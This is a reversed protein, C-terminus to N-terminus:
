QFVDTIWQSKAAVSGGSTTSAFETLALPKSGAIARVRTLMADYCEAPSKWSSWTESRGWNYGDLAVWDVFEDGPYYAEASFGGVDEHNVCWVWQVHTAGLGLGDFIGVVRRWMAIFSAPSNGGLAASWPYWNGNMEHAFRIYVRRDDDNGILGDPGALFVKLRGAWTKIYTDYQGGAIRVEIDTATSGGTFPEWTIMPVNGNSWINPLQQGFLNNMVKTTGTWDTFLNVVAHKKGQWSELAQVQDMKWGQNGYYVGLLTSGRATLGLLTVLLLFCTAFNRVRMLSSM